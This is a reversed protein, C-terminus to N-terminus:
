EQTRGEVWKTGESPTIVEGEEEAEVGLLFGRGLM